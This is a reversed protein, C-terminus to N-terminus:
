GSSSTSPTARAASAPRTPSTPRTSSWRTAKGAASRTAWGSAFRRRCIRARGDPRHARRAGDRHPDRRHGADARDPPPQQLLLDAPDAPGVDLQLRHHLARRASAARSRRLRRRRRLRSRRRPDGPRVDHRLVRSANRTKAKDTLAPVRGDPPDVLLSARKRGDVTTYRSGPDLWFNNYGGVNGYPGPSGDGGSPPAARNADIPANLKESRAAVQQELKKADEDTLVLPTGARRELPTLTGLDYTGQLDPHGDPLRPVGGAAAVPKKAPATQGAIDVHTVFVAAAVAAAVAIRTLFRDRM